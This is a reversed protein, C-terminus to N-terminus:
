LFDVVVDDSAPHGTCTLIWGHKLDTDTLVDNVSMEIKGSKCIATCSSCIGAKCSYPLAINNQLAAQLITQNEGVALDYETHKFRLKITRPPFSKVDAPVSVTELVFNEKRIQDAEFGMYILTLRVMRMYVFPGCIFFVAGRKSHNLHQNVLTIVLENNLRKRDLGADSFLYIVKLREPHDTMMRNLENYFLTTAANRSSYILTIRSNGAVSLLYKLHAYVPAIGSGAAFYLIDKNNTDDTIVFKGAPALADWVDGVQTKTLLFRSIEGNEIRKVTISLLEEGPASSLSYSRRIEDQHHAFVLTIFQGAQYHIKQGDINSLYFTATDPTEWKIGEVKLRLM